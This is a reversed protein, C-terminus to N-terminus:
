SLLKKALEKDLILQEQLLELSEFKNEKRILRVMKVSIEDGYIQKDFDFIHVEITQHGGNVTPRTGINLMGEYPEGNHIVRVAYSGGAPILKLESNIKINATPFGIKRGLQDGEVVTGNLCYEWGLFQNSIHIDGNSLSKRIKSSSVGVNKVDQRPIERIKFGYDSSNAKLSEFSGERNHGFKHDYGIVLTSTGIGDVLVNKIFEASSQQSFEKTFKIKILHDLGFSELVRTKEEFTTLLKITDNAPDLVLRPHPWYTILVTEGGNKAAINKLTNLIKQHGIHVGDFTGSTVIANNNKKFQSIDEYVKM